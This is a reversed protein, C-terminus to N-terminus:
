REEAHQACAYEPLGDAGPRVFLANEDCYLAQLFMYGVLHTCWQRHTRGTCDTIEYGDPLAMWGPPVSATQTAM